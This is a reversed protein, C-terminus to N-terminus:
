FDESDKNSIDVKVFSLQSSETFLKVEGDETTTGIPTGPFFIGDKGSTFVDIGEDVIFDEPLYELIPRNGGIGKLIAQVGENGFTVPIRSNLDNLLLVRSSLYNTEVIRGVLYDKDTVPMGKLIGSKSGRNIIISKLYPSEKDILVKSLIMNEKKLYSEESELIKMLNKNQNSLFEVNLEKMKFVELEKKLKENEKKINIFNTIGSTAHPLFRSPSSAVLSVRYIGDNIISRIPKMFGFGYVDLFFIISAIIILFVLSFKQAAGRQLLASRFAISFDDRSSSM